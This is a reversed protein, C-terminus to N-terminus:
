FRLGRCLSFASHGKGRSGSLAHPFVLVAFESFSKSESRKDDALELSEDPLWLCSRRELAADCSLAGFYYFRRAGESAGADNKTAAIRGQGPSRLLVICM